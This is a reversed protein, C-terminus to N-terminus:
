RAQFPATGSDATGGRTPTRAPALATSSPPAFQMGLSLHARIRLCRKLFKNTLFVPCFFSSEVNVFRTLTSVNNTFHKKDPGDKGEKWLDGGLRQVQHDQHQQPDRVHGPDAQGQM